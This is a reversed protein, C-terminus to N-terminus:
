LCLDVIISIGYFTGYIYRAIAILRNRSAVYDGCCQKRYELCCTRYM